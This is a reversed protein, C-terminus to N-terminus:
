TEDLGLYFTLKARFDRILPLDRAEEALHMGERFTQIAASERGTQELLLGLQYYTAAHQPDRRLAERFAAEAEEWRAQGLLFVGLAHPWFPDEPYAAAKERLEKEREM